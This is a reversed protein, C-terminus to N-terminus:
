NLEPVRIKRAGSEGDSPGTQNPGIKRAGKQLSANRTGPLVTGRQGNFVTRVKRGAM